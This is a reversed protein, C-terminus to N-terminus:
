SAPKWGRAQLAAHARRLFSFDFVKDAGAADKSPAIKTFFAVM